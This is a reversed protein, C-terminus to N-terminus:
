VAFALEREYWGSTIKCSKIDGFLFVLGLVLRRPKRIGIKIKVPERVQELFISAAEM